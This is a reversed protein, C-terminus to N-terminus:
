SFAVIVGQLHFDQLMNSVGQPTSRTLEFQHVQGLTLSVGTAGVNLVSTQYNGSLDQLNIDNLTAVSSWPGRTLGPALRRNYVKFGVTRSAGPSSAAWGMVTLSINSVGPPPMLMFGVGMETGQTMRRVQISGDRPDAILAAAANKAWGSAGPDDFYQAFYQYTYTAIGAGGSGGAAGAPGTAGQPGTAGTM